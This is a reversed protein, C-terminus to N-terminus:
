RFTKAGRTSRSGGQTGPPSTLIAANLGSTFVINVSTNDPSVLVSQVGPQNKLYNVLDIIAQANGVQQQDTTFFRVGTAQVTLAQQQQALTPIPVKTKAPIPAQDPSSVRSPTSPVDRTHACGVAISTTAVGVLLVALRYNM